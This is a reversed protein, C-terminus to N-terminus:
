SNVSFFPFDFFDSMLYITEPKSSNVEVETPMEPKSYKGSIISQPSLFCIVMTNINKNLITIM